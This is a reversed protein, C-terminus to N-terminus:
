FKTIKQTYIFEGNSAKLIFLGAPLNSVDVMIDQGSNMSIKNLMVKGSLDLIEIQTFIEKETMGKINLIDSVPNPFVEINSYTEPEDIGLINRPAVNFIFDVEFEFTYNEDEVAIKSWTDQGTTFIDFTNGDIEPKLLLTYWTANSEADSALGNSPFWLARLTNADFINFPIENFMESTEVGLIEVNEFQLQLQWAVLGPIDESWIDLEITEGASFELEEIFMSVPPIKIGTVNINIFKVYKVDDSFDLTIKVPVIKGVNQSFLLSNGTGGVYIKTTYTGCPYDIDVGLLDLTIDFYPEQNFEVEVLEPFFLSIDEECNSVYINTKCVTNDTLDYVFVELNDDSGADIIIHNYTEDSYSFAYEHSPDLDLLLNDPHLSVPFDLYDIFLDTECHTNAFDEIEGIQPYNYVEGSLWDIIAWNKMRLICDENEDRVINDSELYVYLDVTGSKPGEGMTADCTALNVVQWPLVIDLTEPIQADIQFSFLIVFAILIYKM